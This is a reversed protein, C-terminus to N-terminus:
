TLYKALRARLQEFTVFEGRELEAIGEDIAAEEEPSLVYVGRDVIQNITEALEDQETPSLHKAKEFAANLAKTM